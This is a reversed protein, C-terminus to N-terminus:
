CMGLLLFMNACVLCYSCTPVYWAIPVHQCMGLLLFMNACVLCYSCTPVYWAIPVCHTDVCTTSHEDYNYALHLWLVDPTITNNTYVCYLICKNM